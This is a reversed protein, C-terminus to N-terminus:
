STVLLFIQQRFASFRQYWQTKKFTRYRWEYWLTAGFFIDTGFVWFGCRNRPKKTGNKLTSNLLYWKGLVVKPSSKFWIVRTKPASKVIFKTLDAGKKTKIITLHKHRPLNRMFLIRLRRKVKTSGEWMSLILLYIVFPVPPLHLDAFFRGLSVARSQSARHLIEKDSNRPQLAFVQIGLYLLCQRRQFQWFWQLSVAEM